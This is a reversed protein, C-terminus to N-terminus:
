RTDEGCQKLNKCKIGVKKAAEPFALRIQKAAEASDLESNLIIAELEDIRKAQFKLLDILKQNFWISGQIEKTM